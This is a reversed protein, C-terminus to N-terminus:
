EAEIELGLYEGAAALIPERQSAVIASVIPTLLALALLTRAVAALSMSLHRGVVVLDSEMGRKGTQYQLREYPDTALDYSYGVVFFMMWLGLFAYLPRELPVKCGWGSAARYVFIAAFILEFGHGMASVVLREGSGRMALLYGAVLLGLVLLAGRYARLRYGLVAVGSLVGLVILPERELKWVTVGGGYQFDFAPYAPYGFLWSAVTHGLEHVITLIPTFIFNLFPFRPLILALVLGIGLAKWGETTIGPDSRAVRDLRPGRTNGADAEDDSRHKAFIVGCAACELAGDPAVASCQPCKMWRYRLRSPRTAGRM